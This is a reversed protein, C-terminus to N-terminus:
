LDDSELSVNGKRRLAVFYAEKSDQSRTLTNGYVIHSETGVSRSSEPKERFVKAFLTKLKKEFERDESGQYFKCVFHGGNKLTDNAFQLAAGCLDMSGAHDRFAMGSTNMMRHYPNSLSNVGFGSTQDWPASMDSLVIDVLRGKKAESGDKATSSTESAAREMDIYSPKEEIVTAESDAPSEEEDNEQEEDEEAPLSNRKRHRARELYDKVMGQVDPSLFNGQITSVGKPPQAPIIDIGLIQGNPKTREVAVELLKFAARSKLGQVKAERAFFDKGQRMKWRSNSSSARTQLTEPFSKQCQKCTTFISSSPRRLAASWLPRYAAESM